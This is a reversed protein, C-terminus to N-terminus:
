IKTTLFIVLSVKAFSIAGNDPPVSASAEEIENSTCTPFHDSQDSESLQGSTFYDSEVRVMSGPFGMMRAEEHKIKKERRKEERSKRARTRRRKELQEKFCQVTQKSVLKSIDLETVEFTSAIPLHRLYRLRDRLEENMVTSEKELIEANITEPCNELSGFEKVLMQVNLAHLFIPQGDNSQYFYFVSRPEQNNNNTQVTSIDLDAATVGDDLVPEVDGDSSTLSNGSVNRPRAIKSEEAINDLTMLNDLVEEEAAFPDIVAQAGSINLKEIAPLDNIPEAEVKPLAVNSLDTAM